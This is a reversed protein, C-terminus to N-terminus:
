STLYTYKLFLIYSAKALFCSYTISSFLLLKRIFFYQGPFVKKKMKHKKLM